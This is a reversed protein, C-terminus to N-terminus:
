HALFSDPDFSASGGAPQPTAFAPAPHGWVGHRPAACSVSNNSGHTSTLGVGGPDPSSLGLPLGAGTALVSAASAAAPPTHYGSHSRSPADFDAAGGAASAARQGDTAAAADLAAAGCSYQLLASPMLEQPQLLAAASGDQASGQSSGHSSGQSGQHLFHGHNGGTGFAHGQFSTGPLAAAGLGPVAPASVLGPGAIGRVLPTGGNSHLQQVAAHGARQSYACPAAAIPMPAALSGLGGFAVGDGGSGGGVGDDDARHLNATPHSRDALHETGPLRSPGRSVSRHPSQAPPPASRTSPQHHLSGMDFAPLLDPGSHDMPAVVQHRGGGSRRGASSAGADGLPTARMASARGSSHATDRDEDHVAATSAALRRRQASPATVAPFADAGEAEQPPQLAAHALGVSAVADPLAAADDPVREGDEGEEELVSFVSPQRSRRGSGAQSAGGAAGTTAPPSMISLGSFQPSAGSGPLGPSLV